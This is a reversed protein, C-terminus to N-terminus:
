RKELAPKLVYAEFYQRVMREREELGPHDFKIMMDLRDNIASNFQEAQNSALM